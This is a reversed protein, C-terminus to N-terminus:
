EGEAEWVHVRDKLGSEVMWIVDEGAVLKTVSRIFLKEFLFEIRDYENPDCPFIFRAVATSEDVIYREGMAQGQAADALSRLSGARFRGNVQYISYGSFKEGAFDVLRSIYDDESEGPMAPVGKQLEPVGVAVLRARVADLYFLSDLTSKLPVEHKLPMYFEYVIVGEFTKRRYDTVIRRKQSVVTQFRSWTSYAAFAESVRYVGGPMRELLGGLQKSLYIDLTGASWGSAQCLEFKTFPQQNQFRALLFKFAARQTDTKKAM